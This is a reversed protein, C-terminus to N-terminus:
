GGKMFEMYARTSEEVTAGNVNTTNNQQAYIVVPPPAAAGDEFGTYKALAAMAAIKDHLKIGTRRQICNGQDDFKEEYILEKVAALRARTSHSLNVKRNGDPLLVSFDDINSLAIRAYERALRGRTIAYKNALARQRRKIEKHILPKETGKVWQYAKSKALSESYGAAMAARPVDFDIMYEDVFRLDRAHLGSLDRDKKTSVSVPISNTDDRGDSTPQADLERREEDEDAAEFAALDKLREDDPTDTM